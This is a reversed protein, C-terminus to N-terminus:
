LKYIRIIQCQSSYDQSWFNQTQWFCAEDMFCACTLPLRKADESGKDGGGDVEEAIFFCSFVSYSWSIESDACSPSM